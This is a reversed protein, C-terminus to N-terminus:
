CRLVMGRGVRGLFGVKEGRGDVVGWKRSRVARHVGFSAWMCLLITISVLIWQLVPYGPDPAPSPTASASASANPTSTTSM